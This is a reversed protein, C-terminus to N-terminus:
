VKISVTSFDVLFEGIKKSTLTISYCVRLQNKFTHFVCNCHCSKMDRDRTIKRAYPYSIDFGNWFGNLKLRDVLKKDVAAM